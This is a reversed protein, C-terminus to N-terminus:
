FSYDRSWYTRPQASETHLQLSEASEGPPFHDQETLQDNRYCSYSQERNYVLCAFRVDRVSWRFGIAGDEETKVSVEIAPPLPKSQLYVQKDYQRTTYTTRYPQQSKGPQFERLTHVTQGPPLWGSTEVHNRYCHRNGINSMTYEFHHGDLGWVFLIGAIKQEVDVKLEANMM